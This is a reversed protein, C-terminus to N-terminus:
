PLEYIEILGNGPETETSAVSLAVTYAGPNLTVVLGADKSGASLPFGGVAQAATAIEAATAVSQHPTLPLATEWDDNEAVLAEDANYLSLKPDTLFGTVGFTALEPGIGRVLVRKPSNGTIVFGGVLQGEGSSVLSRSSINVLRQSDTNPNESADYIEALAVGAPGVNEIHVTYAGPNLQTEAVADKSGIDLPFAGLRSTLQQIAFDGSWDDIAAISEGDANYITIKPDPMATTLGFDELTPGIARILVHKPVDGGVVFGTILPGSATADVQARISINVLRDTRTAGEALGAFLSQSGDARVLSGSIASSGLDIQGNLALGDDFTASFVGDGGISGRSGVVTQPSAWLVFTSGTTGVIAHTSGSAAGLASATYYGALSSTGGTPADLQGTFTLGVGSISGTLADSTLSGAFTYENADSAHPRVPLSASGTAAGNAVLTSATASFAGNGDLSVPIVFGEGTDSLFGVFTGSTRNANVVLALEDGASSSGFYVLQGAQRVEFSQTVSVAAAYRNNGSQEARVTVTGGAGTFTLNSGNVSAPGSVVTYTIPLGSSASAGLALSGQDASQTGVPNFTISQPLNAAHVSITLPASVEVGEANAATITAGFTGVAQATGALAGTEANVTVGPVLDSGAFSVGAGNTTITYEPTNGFAVSVSNESTIVPEPVPAAALIAIDDWLFRARPTDFTIVFRDINNFGDHTAVSVMTFTRGGLSGQPLSGQVVAGSLAADDRYGTLTYSTAGGAANVHFFGLDFESGDNSAFAVSSVLLDSGGFSVGGTQVADSSDVGYTQLGRIVGSVAAVDVTTATIDWGSNNFNSITVETTTSGGDIIDGSLPDFTTTGLAPAAAFVRTASALVFWSLLASLIPIVSHPRSFLSPM